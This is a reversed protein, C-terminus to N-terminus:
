FRVKCVEHAQGERNLMVQFRHKELAKTGALREVVVGVHTEGAILNPNTSYNHVLM